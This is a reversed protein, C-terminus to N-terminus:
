KIKKQSPSPLNIVKIKKPHLFKLVQHVKKKKKLFTKIIIIINIPSKKPIKPTNKPISIILNGV